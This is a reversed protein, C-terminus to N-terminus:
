SAGGVAADTDAPTVPHPHLVATAGAKFGLEYVQGRVEAEPWRPDDDPRSGRPAIEDLHRLWVAEVSQVTAPTTLENDLQAYAPCDTAHECDDSCRPALQADTAPTTLHRENLLSALAEALDIESRAIGRTGAPGRTRENFRRLAIQARDDATSM